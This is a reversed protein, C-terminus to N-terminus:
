DVAPEGDLKKIKRKIWISFDDVITYVVPILVLTLVTSLLLGGIVVTAMPAQIEAGEGITIAEARDKGELWLTNIYDALVIANNVVIGALIIVGIFAPVSLSRGTVFLGLAGGAFALPVSLIITFPHLLSEFQAALIMYILIVALGLALSLDAIADNLEQEQGGFEYSYGEPMDYDALKTGIDDTVSRLDRGTIQGSVSVTRVQNERNIQVPGREVSVNAVQGLPVLAGMPTTINVQELNTLSEKVRETGRIVVDIENGATQYRTATVGDTAGRVANAVQATTLGYSAARVKDVTVQVEPMREGISTSAERTGEVSEVIGKIDNSIQDLVGLDDGESRFRYINELVVIANDVLM